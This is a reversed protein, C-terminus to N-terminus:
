IWNIDYLTKNDFCDYFYFQTGKEKLERAVYLLSMATNESIFIVVKPIYNLKNFASVLQKLDDAYTGTTSLVITDCDTVLRLREPHDFLDDIVLIEKNQKIFSESLKEEMDHLGQQGNLFATKGTLQLISTYPTEM